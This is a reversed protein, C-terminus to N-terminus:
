GSWRRGAQARLSPRSQRGGALAEVIDHRRKRGEIGARQLLGGGVQAEGVAVRIGADHQHALRRAAVLIQLALGEDAAGALQEVAHQRGDAQRAVGLIRSLATNMVLVIKQRGGPLRVGVSASVAM